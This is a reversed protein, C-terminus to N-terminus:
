HQEPKQRQVEDRSAVIHPAIAPCEILTMSAARCLSVSKRPAARSNPSQVGGLDEQGTQM